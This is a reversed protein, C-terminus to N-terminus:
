QYRVLGSRRPQDKASPEGSSLLYAQVGDQLVRLRAASM